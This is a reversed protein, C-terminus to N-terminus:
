NGDGFPLDDDSLNDLADINKSEEKPEQVSFDSEFGDDLSLGSDNSQTAGDTEGKRDLFQVSDCIIEVVSGNTGDKRVFRRQNLRGIVGVLSGKRVFKFVIDAANNFVNCGIFISEKEGDANKQRSDVALTFSCVSAGSNTKRLEPDRTLRGVLVVNNIM